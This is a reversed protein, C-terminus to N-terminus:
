SNNGYLAFFIQIKKALEVHEILSESFVSAAKKAVCMTAYSCVAVIVVVVQHFGGSKINKLPILARSSFPELCM